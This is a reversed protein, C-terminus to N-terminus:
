MKGCGQVPYAGVSSSYIFVSTIYIHHLTVYGQPQHIQNGYLAMIKLPRLGFIFSLPDHKYNNTTSWSAFCIAIICVTNEQEM